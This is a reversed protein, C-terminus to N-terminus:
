SIHGHFIQAHTLSHRTQSADLKESIYVSLLHKPILIHALECYLFILLKQQQHGAHLILIEFPQSNTTFPEQFDAGSKTREM